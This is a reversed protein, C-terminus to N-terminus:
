TSTRRSQRRPCSVTPSNASACRRSRDRAASTGSSTAATPTTGCCRRTSRRGASPGPLTSRPGAGSARMAPSSTTSCSTRFFYGFTAPWLASNMHRADRQQTGDANEVNAFVHDDASDVALARALLDGDSRDGSEVLPPVCEVDMSELPDDTRSYGASGDHNNTPTGGELFELGDTYHHGDLLDEVADPTASADMSAKVGVVMLRSFGRAPDFGSLGAINLRLGMGVSTAEDFDVMWGTGEPAPSDSDGSEVNEAAVSEPSPGMPLPERVPNGAVATRQTKGQGDEWEGIAVWRDPLLAARPQQTWSQPKRPVEPFSIAPVKNPLSTRSKDSAESGGSGPNGGSQGSDGLSLGSLDTKVTPTETVTGSLAPDDFALKPDTIASTQDSQSKSGKTDGGGGKAVDVPTMSVPPQEITLDLDPPPDPRTLLDDALDSDTPELAHVVYAARKRGFRDLLQKWAREKLERYRKHHQDSFKGPDIDAVLERLRQTPLRGTLYEATPDNPVVSPDPHRAYWLTAWFNQGWLVEDDTLQEEHSDVHIQDPYVRVLLDTLEGERKRNKDVFRTELRVPLMAIPQEDLDALLDETGSTGGYADVLAKSLADAHKSRAAIGAEIALEFLTVLQDLTTTDVAMPGESPQVVDSVATRVASWDSGGVYATLAGAVADAAPTIARGRKFADHLTTGDEFLPDTLFGLAQRRDASEGGLRDLSEVVAGPQARGPKNRELADHLDSLDSHVMRLRPIEADVQKWAARATEVAAWPDAANSSV